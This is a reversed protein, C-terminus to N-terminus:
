VDLSPIVLPTQQKAALLYYFCFEGMIALHIIQVLLILYGEYGALVFKSRKDALEQFSSLWFVFLFLRSLGLSFVFHSVWSEVPKNQKQLMYFQPLIAVTELYAAFTWATDTFFNRNLTPHFLIALVLCPVVLVIPGLFNPIGKFNGFADEIFIYQQERSMILYITALALSFSVFEVAQYLWDGSKDFPLYGEYVTISCLRAAFVMSYLELTKLSVGSNVLNQQTKIKFFLLFFGDMRIM